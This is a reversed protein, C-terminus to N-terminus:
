RNLLFHNRRSIIIFACRKMAKKLGDRRFRFLFSFAFVYLMSPLNVRFFPSFPSIYAVALNSVFYKGVRERTETDEHTQAQNRLVIILIIILFSTKFPYDRAINVVENNSNITM